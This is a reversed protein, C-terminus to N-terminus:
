ISTNLSSAANLRNKYKTYNTIPNRKRTRQLINIQEESPGLTPTMRKPKRSKVNRQAHVDKTLHRRDTEYSADSAASSSSGNWDFAQGKSKKKLAASPSVFDRSSLYSTHKKRYKDTVYVLDAKSSSDVLGSDDDMGISYSDDRGYRPNDVLMFEPVYDSNDSEDDHIVTPRVKKIVQPRLEHGEAQAEALAELIKFPNKKKNVNIKKPMFNLESARYESPSPRWLSNKTLGHPLGDSVSFTPIPAKLSGSKIVTSTVIPTHVTHIISKPQKPKVFHHKYITRTHTHKKILQPVHLKIHISDNSPFLSSFFSFHSNISVLQEMESVINHMRCMRSLCFWFASHIEGNTVCLFFFFFLLFVASM